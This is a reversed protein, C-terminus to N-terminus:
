IFKDRLERLKLERLKSAPVCNWENVSEKATTTTHHYGGFTPWLFVAVVVAVHCKVYMDYKDGRALGYRYSYVSVYM